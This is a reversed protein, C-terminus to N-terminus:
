SQTQSTLTDLMAVWDSRESEWAGAPLIQLAQQLAIVAAESNNLTVYCEALKHLMDAHISAMVSEDSLKKCANELLLVADEPRNTAALYKAKSTIFYAYPHLPLMNIETTQEVKEILARCKEIAGLEIYAKCNDATISIYNLVEEQEKWLEAAVVGYELADNVRNEVKAINSLLSIAGAGAFNTLEENLLHIVKQAEQSAKDFQNLALYVYGLGLRILPELDSENYSLAIEYNRLADEYEDLMRYQSAIQRHVDAKKGTKSISTLAQELVDQWEKEAGATRIFNFCRTILDIGQQHTLESELSFTILEYLNQKDSVLLLLEQSSANSVDEEWMALSREIMQIFKVKNM